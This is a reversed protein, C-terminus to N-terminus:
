NEPVSRIKQLQNIGPVAASKRFGDGTMIAFTGPAFGARRLSLAYISRLQQGGLGGCM